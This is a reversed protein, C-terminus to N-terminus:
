VKVRNVFQIQEEQREAPTEAPSGTSFWVHKKRLMVKPALNTGHDFREMPSAFAMWELYAMYKLTYYVGVKPAKGTWQIKKGKFKFDLDQQYLTGHEDECWIANDGLYWLRDENEELDTALQKNNGIHAAGRLIVQGDNISQAHTFTIKDFDHIISGSKPPPSFTCDGPVMFGADILQRNAGAQIGTVLGRLVKANRYLFGDGSCKGCRLSRVKRPSGEWMVNASFLDEGRCSPCAIASEHIVLDGRDEIFQNHLQLKWDIPM